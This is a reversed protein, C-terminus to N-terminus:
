NESAAAQYRSGVRGPGLSGGFKKGAVRTRPIYRGVTLRCTRRPTPGGIPGM